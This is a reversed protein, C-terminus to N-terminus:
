GGIQRAEAVWRSVLDMGPCLDPRQMLAVQLKLVQRHLQAIPMQALQMPSVVGAHLLLGCYDCGVSPIRALDSLAVWKNVHQVHLQLEAAIAGRGGATRGRRWLEITSRIGCRELAALDEPTLGPLHAIAWNKSPLRSPLM